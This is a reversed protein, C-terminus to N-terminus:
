RVVGGIPNMIIASFGRLLARIEENPDGYVMFKTVEVAAGFREGFHNNFNNLHTKFAEEM